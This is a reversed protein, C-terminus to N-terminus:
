LISALAQWKPEAIFLWKAKPYYEECFLKVPVTDHPFDYQVEIGRDPRQYDIVSIIRPRIYKGECFASLWYEGAKDPIDLWHEEILM